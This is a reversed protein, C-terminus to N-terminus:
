HVHDNEGLGLVTPKFKWCVNIFIQFREYAAVYILHGSVIRARMLLLFDHSFSWRLCELEISHSFRNCNLLM